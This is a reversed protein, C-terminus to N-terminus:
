ESVPGPTQSGVGGANAGISSAWNWFTLREREAVAALEQGLDSALEAPERDAVREAGQVLKV